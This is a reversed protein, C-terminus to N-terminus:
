VPIKLTYFILRLPSTVNKIYVVTGDNDTIVNADLARWENVPLEWAIPTIEMGDVTLELVIGSEGNTSKAFVKFLAKNKPITYVSDASINVEEYKSNMEGFPQPYGNRVNIKVAYGNTVEVKVNPGDTTKIVVSM